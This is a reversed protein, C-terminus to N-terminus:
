DFHCNFSDEKQQQCQTVLYQGPKVRLTAEVTRPSEWLTDLCWVNTTEMVTVYNEECFSEGNVRFSLFDPSVGSHLIFAAMIYREHGAIGSKQFYVMIHPRSSTTSKTDSVPTYTPIPTSTRIRTPIRTPIRTATPSLPTPTNPITVPLGHARVNDLLFVAIWTKNHLQIWDGKDNRGGPQVSSCATMSGAIAYDTGPGTRLNANRNTIPVLARCPDPTAASTMTATATSVLTATATPSPVATPTWTFVPISTSTVPIEAVFETQPEPPSRTM